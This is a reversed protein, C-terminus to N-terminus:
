AVSCFQTSADIALNFFGLTKNSNTDREATLLYHQNESVMLFKMM